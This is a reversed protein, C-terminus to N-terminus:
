FFAAFYTRPVPFSVASGFVGYSFPPSSFSPFANGLCYGVLVGSCKFLILQLTYPFTSRVYM